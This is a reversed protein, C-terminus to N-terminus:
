PSIVQWRSGDYFSVRLTRIDAAVAPYISSGNVCTYSSGVLSCSGCTFTSSNNFANLISSAGLPYQVTGGGIAVDFVGGSNVMSYGTVQEQYIICAGSPDTIQFLFSVNNYELPTGDNKLIRGQYTLASPSAQVAGVCFFITCLTAMWIKM